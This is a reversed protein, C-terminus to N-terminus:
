LTKCYFIVQVSPPTNEANETTGDIGHRHFWNRPGTDEVGRHINDAFDDPTGAVGSQHRGDQEGTSKIAVGHRHERDGVNEGIRQLDTTGVLFRSTMDPTNADGCVVWGIPPTAEPAYSAMMVGPALLENLAAFAEMERQSIREIADKVAGSVVQSELQKVRTNLEVFMYTGTILATAIAVLSSAVTVKSTM